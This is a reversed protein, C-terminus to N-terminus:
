SLRGQHQNPSAYRELEAKVDAFLKDLKEVQPLLSAIPEGSSACAIAQDEIFAAAGSMRNAGIQGCASRLTHVARVLEEPSGNSTVLTRIEDLQRSTERMFLKIYSDFRGRMVNRVSNLAVPNLTAEDAPMWSQLDQGAHLEQPLWKHLTQALEVQDLPKAVFASMGVELCKARDTETTAATMAILPFPRVEGSAFMHLFLRAVEYGDMAPMHIDLLAIDFRSQRLAEMAAKGSQVITVRCGMMELTARAVEGNVDSDDIVLIEPHRFLIGQGLGTAHGDNLPPAGVVLSDGAEETPRDSRDGVLEAYRRLHEALVRKVDDFNMPKTLYDDMGSKMCRDRDGRMVHATLAIIPVPPLQREQEFQRINRTADFGNMGPMQCDMVILDFVERQRYEVASRGEDATAVKSGLTELFRGLLVQQNRNDDVILIRKGKFDPQADAKTAQSSAAATRQPQRLPKRRKSIVNALAQTLKEPLAPRGVIAAFETEHGQARGEIDVNSTWLLVPVELDTAAQLLGGLRAVALMPEAILIADIQASSGDLPKLLRLAALTDAVAFCRGGSQAISESAITRSPELGDLVLICAPDPKALDRRPAPPAAEDPLELEFWFDSGEGPTSTVGIQGNMLTVLEHCISLGLGTGGYRRAMSTDAQTFKTFLRAQAEPAIGIGSDRVSIRIRSAGSESIGAKTAAICIHGKETFKIANSAFNLVVQRLRHPDGRVEGAVGPAIRLLVAVDKERGKPAILEAVDGLVQHLNFGVSELSVKGAEIKSLDLIDNILTLLSEASTLILRSFKAQKDPLPSMALLQAMGMIGNLPTRIEHSMTALFESKMQNALEAEEKAVMLEQNQQEVRARAQVVGDLLRNLKEGLIGIENRPLDPVRVHVKGRSFKRIARQIQTLPRLIARHLMLVYLALTALIGTIMIAGPEVMGRISEAQINDASAQLMLQAPRVVGDAERMEITRTLVFTSNRFATMTQGAGPQDQGEPMGSQWDPTASTGVLSADTSAIVKGSTRDILVLAQIGDRAHLRQVIEQLQASSGLSAAAAEVANATADSRREISVRAQEAFYSYTAFLAAAAALSGVLLTWLAARVTLNLFRALIM